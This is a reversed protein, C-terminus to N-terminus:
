SRAKMSQVVKGGGIRSSKSGPKRSKITGADLYNQFRGAEIDGAASPSVGTGRLSGVPQATYALGTPYGMTKSPLVLEFLAAFREVSEKQPMPISGKCFPRLVDKLQRTAFDAKFSSKGWGVTEARSAARKLKKVWQLWMRRAAITRQEGGWTEGDKPPTAFREFIADLPYCDGVCEYEKKARECDGKQMIPGGHPGGTRFADYLTYCDGKKPRLREMRARARREDAFRGGELPFERDTVRSLIQYRMVPADPPRVGKM